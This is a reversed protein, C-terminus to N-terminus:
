EHPTAGGRKARQMNRRAAFDEFMATYTELSVEAQEEKVGFLDPYYTSLPVLSRKESTFLCAVTEGIQLALNRLMIIQRKTRAEEMRREREIRRSAAKILAIIEGITM